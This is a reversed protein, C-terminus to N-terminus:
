RNTDALSPATGRVISRFDHWDYWQVVPAMGWTCGGVCDNPVTALDISHYQTIPVVGWEAEDAIDAYESHSMYLYAELTKSFSRRM